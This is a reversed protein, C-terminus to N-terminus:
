PIIKYERGGRWSEGVEIRKNEMNKTEANCPREVNM